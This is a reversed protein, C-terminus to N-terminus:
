VFFVLQNFTGPLNTEVVQIKVKKKLIAKFHGLITIEKHENLSACNCLFPVSLIIVTNQSVSSFSLFVLFSM